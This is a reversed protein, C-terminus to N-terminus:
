GGMVTGLTSCAPCNGDPRIMAYGGMPDGAFQEFNVNWVIMLRVRGSQASLSAAEALWAAHEAVSVGEAWAFAGPLPDAFGEGSLYGLETWCVPLSPFINGRALMSGFYRTPYNDRPDGTTQSPAVVGENYHLGVCDMYNAAGADAMQQMFRDDNMISTPDVGEAGTPAPAGSIVIVNPNATKISNYAAALMQTYRAGGITGRPWERAINPENWVEIADPGLAAVQGVFDAYQQIYSDYDGMQTPQGVIGLLIRFGNSQADAIFTQALGTSDGLNFRLQKKVWTMGASRMASATNAGLGLVHGGLEFSGAAGSGAVPVPLNLNPDPTAEPDTTTSATTTVEDCIAVADLDFSVRVQYTVGSLDTIRFTWGTYFERWDNPLVDSDCDDISDDWINQEFTYSQVYTLDTSFEEELADRVTNFARWVPDNRSPTPEEDQAIVTGGVSLSMTLAVFLLTLTLLGGAVRWRASTHKQM